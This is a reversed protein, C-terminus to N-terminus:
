VERNTPLTLHTYSVPLDSRFDGNTVTREAEPLREILDKGSRRMLAAPHMLGRVHQVLDRQRHLRVHLLIQAFNVQRRAASQGLYRDIDEGLFVLRFMVLRDVAQRLVAFRQQGEEVERGLMPIVQPRRVGDFTYERRNAM